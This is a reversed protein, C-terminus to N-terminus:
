PRGHDALMGRREPLRNLPISPLLRQPRGLMVLDAVSGVYTVTSLHPVNLEGTEEHRQGAHNVRERWIQNEGTLVRSAIFLALVNGDVPAQVRVPLTFAGAGEGEAFGRDTTM